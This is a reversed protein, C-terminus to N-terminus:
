LEDVSLRNGKWKVSGLVDHGDLSMWRHKGNISCKKHMLPKIEEDDILCKYIGNQEPFGDLWESNNNLKKNKNTMPRPEIRDLETQLIAAAQRNDIVKWIAPDPYRPDYPLVECGLARAEIATRGVAYIKKYRAIERLLLERPMDQLITTGNPIASTIKSRRGAFATDKDKITKYQQIEELDISLPLYIVHNGYARVKDVTERIGCILIMDHYKQLWQYNDPHQNNHVFVISHNTAYGYCNVTIWNRDTIIRPIINRVIERSYYYAGNFRNAGANKWRDRYREFNHDIIIPDM